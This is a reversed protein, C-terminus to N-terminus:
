ATASQSTLPRPPVLPCAVLDLEVAVVAVVRVVLQQQRQVPPTLSATLM